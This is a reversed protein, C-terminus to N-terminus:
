GLQPPAAERLTVMRGRAPDWLALQLCAIVDSPHLTTTAPDQLEPLADM